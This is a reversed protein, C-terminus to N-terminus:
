APILPSWIVNEVCTKLSVSVKGKCNAEIKVHVHRRLPCLPHPSMLIANDDAARKLATQLWIPDNQRLSNPELDLSKALGIDKWRVIGFGSPNPAFEGPGSISGRKQSVRIIRDAPKVAQQNAFAFWRSPKRSAAM